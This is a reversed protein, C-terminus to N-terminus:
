NNLAGQDIWDAILAIQTESLPGGVPPMRTGVPPTDSELKLFLLSSSSDGPVILTYTPDQASPQNVILDYGAPETLRLGYGASGGPRHCGLCRVQFIPLVDDIYSVVSKEASDFDLPLGGCGSAIACGLSVLYLPIPTGSTFRAPVTAGNRTFRSTFRFYPWM